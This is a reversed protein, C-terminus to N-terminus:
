DCQPTVFVSLKRFSNGNKMSITAPVWVLYDTLKRLRVVISTKRFRYEYVASSTFRDRHRQTTKILKLEVNHGNLNMWANFGDEDSMFVANEAQKTRYLYHNGCGPRSGGADEDSRISGIRPLHSNGVVKSQGFILTPVLVFTAMCVIPLIRKVSTTM